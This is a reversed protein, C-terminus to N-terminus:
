AVASVSSGGQEFRCPWGLPRLDKSTGHDWLDPAKWLCKKSLWFLLVNILWGAPLPELGLPWQCQSSHTLASKGMNHQTPYPHISGPASLWWTKPHLPLVLSFGLEEWKQHQITVGPWLYGHPLGALCPPAKGPNQEGEGALIPMTLVLGPSPFM